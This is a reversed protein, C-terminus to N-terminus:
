ASMREVLEPFAFSEPDYDIVIRGRELDVEAGEVGAVSPLVRALQESVERLGRFRRTEIILRREEFAAPFVDRLASTLVRTAAPSQLRESHYEVLLSGTVASAAVKYIGPVERLRGVVRQALAGDGRLAAVKFRLRGPSLHVLDFGDLM